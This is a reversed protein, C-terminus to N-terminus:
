RGRNYTYFGKIGDPEDYLRTAKTQTRDNFIGGDGILLGGINPLLRGLVIGILNHTFAFGNVEIQSLFFRFRTRFYYFFILM